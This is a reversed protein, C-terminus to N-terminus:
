TSPAVTPIKGDPDWTKWQLPRVHVMPGQARYQIRPDPLGRSIRDFVETITEDSLSSGAAWHPSFWNLDEGTLTSASTGQRVKRAIQVPSRYQAHAIHLGREVNGVRSAGHNGPWIELLPHARVAVKGPVSPAADMVFKAEIFPSPSPVEPVMHHFDARVVNTERPRARLYDALFSGRAFWFEDADFPILWDAGRRQAFHALLTMKESQIHAPEEDLAVHVREDKLAIEQLYERTGDVSRNDAVLVRDVGQSFLHEIASPIVDLEDRVVSIAWVSGPVRRSRPVKPLAMNRAARLQSQLKKESAFRRTVWSLQGLEARVRNISSM